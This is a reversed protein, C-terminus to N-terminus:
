TTEPPEPGLDTMDIVNVNFRRAAEEEVKMGPSIEGGVLWLEDCMSVVQQDFELGRDRSEPTRDGLATCGEIWPALFGDDHNSRWAWRLWRRARELNEPKGGYPHAIYVLKM